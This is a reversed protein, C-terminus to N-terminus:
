RKAVMPQKVPDLDAKLPHETVSEAVRVEPCQNCLDLPHKSQFWM